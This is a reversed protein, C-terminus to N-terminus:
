RDVRPFAAEHLARFREDSRLPDFFGYNEVHVLLQDRDKYARQLWEFALDSNGLAGHIM